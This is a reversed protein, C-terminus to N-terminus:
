KPQPKKNNFDFKGEPNNSNMILDKEMDQIGEESAQQLAARAQEETEGFYWMRLEIKSMIGERMLTTRTNIETDVDVIISDDWEFNVDYDGEATIKYLSCYANMIYIIERLWDELAQQIDANAQYSRQKLIKLETATKAESTVDAITGRSLATADEIRMLIMNLGSQFSADRLAPSYYQFTDGEVGIDVKRYLRRQMDNLVPTHTDVKGDPGIEQFNLADRDIDIAMEGAEYEWLLRSYQMDADKILDKAREM